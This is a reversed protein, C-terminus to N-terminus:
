VQIKFNNPSSILSNEQLYKKTNRKISYHKRLEPCFTLIINLSTKRIELPFQKDQKMLIFNNWKGLNDVVTHLVETPDIYKKNSKIMSAYLKQLKGM